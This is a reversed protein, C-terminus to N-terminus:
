MMFSHTYLFKFLSHLCNQKLTNKKPKSHHKIHRHILKCLHFSIANSVFYFLACRM